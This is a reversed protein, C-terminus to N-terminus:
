YVALKTIGDALAAAFADIEAKRNYKCFSVRVTFDATHRDLGYNLLVRQSERAATNGSSCASGSSIYIGRSSLYNLMVESRVNPLRISLIYKLIGANEQNFRVGPCQERIKQVTYDYLAEVTKSDEKINIEEVARGFASIGPTNPASSRLGREQMGGFLQPSIRIGKRLYLFGAGKIGHIKHASAAFMDVKLKNLNIDLKGFAQVGDCHIYPKFEANKYAAGVTQTIKKIDYIVGTENNVAMVSILIVRGDLAKKLEDLNIVGGKASLYIIEFGRKALEKVAMYVSPHESDSTIIKNGRRKHADCTGFIALNNAETGSSTFIIEGPQANLVGAVAARAREIQQKAALGAAHSSDPNAYYESLTGSFFDAVGESPRTAAASDLYITDKMNM